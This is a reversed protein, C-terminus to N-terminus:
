IHSKLETIAMYECRHWNIWNNKKNDSTTFVKILENYTLWLLQLKQAAEKQTYNTQHGELLYECLYYNHRISVKEHYCSIIAVRKLPKVKVGAEELTERMCTEELSEGEEVGGGPTVYGNESQSYLVGYKNNKKILARATVRVLNPEKDAEKSVIGNYIKVNLM